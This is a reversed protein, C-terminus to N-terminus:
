LSNTTFKCRKKYSKTLSYYFIAKVYRGFVSFEAALYFAIFLLSEIDM